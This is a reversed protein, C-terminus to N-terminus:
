RHRGFLRLEVLEGVPPLASGRGVASRVFEPTVGVAKFKVLTKVPLRGYGLREFGTVFEPTVNLARLQVLDDAPANAYGIRAFSGIWEPTIGLAKFEVLTNVRNPRYGARAMDAIYRADVGLAALAMLDGVSPTPYRAAALAEVLERRVNLAMLGFAEDYTPVAIGRRQLAQTFAPDATFGCRGIAQSGGGNGACDLRGAERVLAFRVPRSGPARFAAVDLGALEEPRFNTSWNNDGRRSERDHRFRARLEVPNRRSEELTFAIPDAPTAAICASSVSVMACFLAGAFAVFRNM